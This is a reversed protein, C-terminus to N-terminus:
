YIFGIGITMLWSIVVGREERAEDAEREYNLCAQMLEDNSTKLLLSILRRAASTARRRTRMVNALERVILKVSTEEPWQLISLYIIGDALFSLSIIM